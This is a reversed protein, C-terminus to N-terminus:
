LQFADAAMDAITEGIALSSTAGPSPANRVHLIGGDTAVVFDDVLQGDPTLVRVLILGQATTVPQARM